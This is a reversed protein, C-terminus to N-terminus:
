DVEAVFTEADPEPYLVVQLVDPYGAHWDVAAMTVGGAVFQLVQM